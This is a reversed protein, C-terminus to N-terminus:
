PTPEPLATRPLSWGTELVQELGTSAGPGTLVIRVTGTAANWAGSLAWCCRDWVFFVEPRFNWPSRAADTGTLEWVDRLRAGVTLADTPRVAVTLDDITLESRALTGTLRDYSAQYGIRGQLGVREWADAGIVLTARRLFGEPQLEDALAWEVQAEASVLWPGLAEQLLAARVEFRTDRRGSGSSAPDLNARWTAEWRPTGQRRVERLQVSLQRPRPEEPHGLWAPPLWVLGRAELRAVDDWTLAVSADSVRGTPLEIRQRAELELASWRARADVTLREFRSLEPDFLAQVGLGPREDGSRLSGLTLRADVPESRRVRGAGDPAPDPRYAASVDLTVVRDYAARWTARTVTDAVRPEGAPVQLDHLHDVTVRLEVPAQRAQLSLTARLTGPDDDRILWVHELSADIWSRDGFLTLRNSLPAWGVTEPRRNEVLVYGGTTELGAWPAPRVSARFQVDTRTRVATADFRFPTEGEVVDRNLTASVTAVQGFSQTVSFRSRWAVAREGQAYYRGEFRNDGEIRAGTWPAWPDLVLGHEIRARGEDVLGAAAARRNIPNAVDQFLGLDLAAATLRLNALRVPSLDVPELRLRLPTRVPAVRSAYAPPTRVDIAPDTDVFGQSDVRLRAGVQGLDTDTAALALGYLWRGPTRADDRTLEAGVTTGPEGEATAYTLRVTWRDDSAARAPVGAGAARAVRHPEYAVAVAGAGAEDYVRHDLEFGLYSVEVAGGLLRGLPGGEVTPNVDALYRVTFTGLAGPGAVYPWRLRVEARRAATGTGIAFQPQRDGQALPIVLLPLRLVAVGRVLVTVDHGVLRDGPYLVMREARFAYDLTEQDCRTCPSALGGSFTLQGPLREALEGAVDIASTFVVADIARLREEDLRLELDAGELREDGSTFSGPGIVRVTRGDVDLEIREGVIVLDDVTLTIRRGTLVVLEVEVGSPLLTRRLELRADPDDGADITLTAAHAAALALALALALSRRWWPARTM